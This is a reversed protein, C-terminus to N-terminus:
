AEFSPWRRVPKEDFRAIPAVFRLAEFFPTVVDDLFPFWGMALGLPIGIVAALLFGEAFRQLSSLLHVQLTSGAFPSQTLAAFTEIVRVPSPLFQRAVLGTASALWWIGILAAFGALSLLALQRSTPPHRGTM